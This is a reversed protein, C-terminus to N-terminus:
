TGRLVRDFYGLIVNAIRVPLADPGAPDVDVQPGDFMGRAIKFADLTLIEIRNDPMRGAFLRRFLQASTDRIDAEIGILEPTRPLREEEEELIRSLRSSPKGRALAHILLPVAQEIGMGQTADVAEHTRALLREHERLVLESMISDNSAFYQYLSGISVGAQEAIATTTFDARGRAELVRVAGELISNVLLKSRMQTPRKRPTLSPEIPPM